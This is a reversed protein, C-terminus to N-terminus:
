KFRSHVRRPLAAVRPLSGSIRFEFDSIRFGLPIASSAVFSCLLCLFSLISSNTQTKQAKKRRNLLKSIAEPFWNSHFTIALNSAWMRPAGRPTAAMRGECFTRMAQDKQAGSPTIRLSPLKRHGWGQYKM